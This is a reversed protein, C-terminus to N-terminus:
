IFSDCDATRWTVTNNDNIKANTISTPSKLPASFLFSLSNVYKCEYIDIFKTNSHVSHKIGLM